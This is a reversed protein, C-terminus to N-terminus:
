AGSDKGFQLFGTVLTERHFVQGLLDAGLILVDGDPEGRGPFLVGANPFNAAAM